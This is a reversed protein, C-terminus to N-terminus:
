KLNKQKNRNVLDLHNIESGITRLKETFNLM